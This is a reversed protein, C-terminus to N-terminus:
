SLYPNQEPLNALKEDTSRFELWLTDEAHLYIRGAVQCTPSPNYEYVECINSLM